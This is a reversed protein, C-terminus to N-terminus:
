MKFSQLFQWSHSQLLKHLTPLIEGHDRLLESSPFRWLIQSFCFSIIMRYINFIWEILGFEFIKSITLQVSSLNRSLSIVYSVNTKRLISDFHTHFGFFQSSGHAFTWFIPPQFKSLNRSEQWLQMENWEINVWCHM